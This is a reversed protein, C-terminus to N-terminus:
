AKKRRRYDRVKQWAKRTHHNKDSWRIVKRKVSDSAKFMIALGVLMTPLGLPLPLPFLIMGICFISAGIAMLLSKKLM